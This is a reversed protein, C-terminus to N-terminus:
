WRATAALGTLLEDAFGKYREYSPYDPRMLELVPDYVWLWQYKTDTDPYEASPTANAMSAPIRWYVLEISPTVATAVPPWIKFQRRWNSSDDTTFDLIEICESPGATKSRIAHYRSVDSVVPMPKNDTLNYFSVYHDYDVPLYGTSTAAACVLGTGTTASTTVTRYMDLHIEQADVKGSARLMAAVKLGIRSGTGNVIQAIEADTVKSRAATPEAIAIRIQAILNTLTLRQVAM